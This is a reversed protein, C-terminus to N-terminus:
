REVGALLELDHQEEPSIDPELVYATPLGDPVYFLTCDDLNVLEQPAVDGEPVLTQNSM